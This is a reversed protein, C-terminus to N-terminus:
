KRRTNLSGGMYKNVVEELEKQKRDLEKEEAATLVGSGYRARQRDTKTRRKKLVKKQRKLRKLKNEPKNYEDLTMSGVLLGMGLPNSGTATRLGFRAAKSLAKRIPNKKLSEPMKKTIDLKKIKDKAKSYLSKKKKKVGPKMIQQPISSRSIVM